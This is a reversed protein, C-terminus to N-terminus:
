KDIFKTSPPLTKKKKRIGECANKDCICGLTENMHAKMAFITLPLITRDGNSLTSLVINGNNSPISL